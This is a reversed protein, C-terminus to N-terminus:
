ASTHGLLGRRDALVEFVYTFFPPISSALAFFLTKLSWGFKRGAVFCTAVYALFVAGHIPGFIPVGGEIGTHPDDQIVWKVLMATLLGVWSIAEAIAITRFWTRTRSPAIETLTM